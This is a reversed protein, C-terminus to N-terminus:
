VDQEPSVGSRLLHGEPRLDDQGGRLPVAGGLDRPNHVRPGADEPLLCLYPVVLQWEADSVASPYPQHTIM